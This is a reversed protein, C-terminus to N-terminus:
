YFIKQHSEILALKRSRKWRKIAAERQMAASKTPHEEAFVMEVPRHMRTYRGGGWSIDSLRRDLNTTWGTYLSDDGCRLIYM